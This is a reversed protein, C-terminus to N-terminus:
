LRRRRCVGRERHRGRECLRTGTGDKAWSGARLNDVMARPSKMRAVTSQQGQAAGRNALRDDDAASM